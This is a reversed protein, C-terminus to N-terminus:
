GLQGCMSRQPYKGMDGFRLLYDLMIRVELKSGVSSCYKRPVFGVRGRGTQKQFQALIRM